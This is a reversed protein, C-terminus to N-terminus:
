RSHRGKLWRGVIRVPADFTKNAALFNTVQETITPTTAEGAADPKASIRANGQAYHGIIEDTDSPNRNPAANGAALWQGAIYNQHIPPTM